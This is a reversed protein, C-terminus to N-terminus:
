NGKPQIKLYNIAFNSIKDFVNQAQGGDIAVGEGWMKVMAVYKPLEGETGGFGIYTGVLESMTDDYRGNKIVQATGSKGGITYGAPDIGMRVKYNRNNVLMGRMMASTEPKLIQEGALDHEKKVLRGEALEGEVVSPLHYYGGNVVASFATAVQIMTVQLNQGFTMNAYLSDRGEGENPDAIMGEDEMLEIGTVRGLKFRNHYYDYLKERGTQTIQEANGGLLKLAYISGTNLSWYLADKMTLTGYLMSRQEANKILWKDIKEYGKNFFTTEDTMKGEEIAASFTFTKCVSAPEYPVQTTYNIYASADKVAGYDSPNYTPVNAMAMIKGTQPEMVIAAAHTAGYKGIEEALIEEVGRELGRDVSLVVDKGAVAPERVNDNGISLAVKNVDAVTKLLGDKGRLEQDLSGEVGYQGLGDANVFGLLGSGLEGEPYVRQTRRQFRVGALGAAAIEDAATKGVNRAVIFYRLGEREYAADLNKVMKDPAYKELVEKIKEKETVAPDIIVAYVTQNMAVAVPEGGDMMYIEGREAVIKDVLTHTEAAKAVWADHQIIQILFLRALIITLAVIVIGKLIKIRPM